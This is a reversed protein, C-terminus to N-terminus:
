AHYGMYAAFLRVGGVLVQCQVEALAYGIWACAYYGGFTDVAHGGHFNVPGAVLFDVGDQDSREFVPRRNLKSTNSM